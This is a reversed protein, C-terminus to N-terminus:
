HFKSSGVVDGGAGPNELVRKKMEDRLWEPIAKKPAAAGSADYAAFAAASQPAATAYAAAQLSRRLRTISLESGLILGGQLVSKFLSVNRHERVFSKNTHPMRLAALGSISM